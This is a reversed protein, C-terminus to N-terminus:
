QSQKAHINQLVDVLDFDTIIVPPRDRQTKNADGFDLIVVYYLFTLLIACFYTPLKDIDKKFYAMM